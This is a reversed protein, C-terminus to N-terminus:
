IIDKNHNKMKKLHENAMNEFDKSYKNLFKEMVDLSLQQEELFGAYYFMNNFCVFWSMNNM